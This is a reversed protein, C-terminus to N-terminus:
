DVSIVWRLNWVVNVWIEMICMKEIKNVNSKRIKGGCNTQVGGGSIIIIIQYMSKIYIKTRCKGVNERFKCLM